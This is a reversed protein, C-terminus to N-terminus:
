FLRLRPMRSTKQEHGITRRTAKPLADVFPLASLSLGGWCRTQEPALATPSKECSNGEMSREMAYSKQLRRVAYGLLYETGM